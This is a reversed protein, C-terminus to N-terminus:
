EVSRWKDRKYRECGYRGIKELTKVTDKCPKNECPTNEAAKNESVQRRSARCICRRARRLKLTRATRAKWADGNM